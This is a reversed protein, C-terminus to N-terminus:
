WTNRKVESVPFNQYVGIWMGVHIWCTDSPPQAKMHLTPSPKFELGKMKRGFVDEPPWWIRPWWLGLVGFLISSILQMQSVLWARSKSISRSKSQSPSGAARKKWKALCWSSWAADVLWFPDPVASFMSPLSPSDFFFICSPRSIFYKQFIKM